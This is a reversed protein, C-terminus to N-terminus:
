LDFVINFADFNFITLTATNMNWMLFLVASFRLLKQFYKLCDRIPVLYNKLITM